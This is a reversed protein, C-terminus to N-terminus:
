RLRELLGQKITGFVNGDFEINFAVFATNKIVPRKFADNGLQFAPVLFCIRGPGPLFDALVHAKTGTRFTLPCFQIQRCTRHPNLPAIQTLQGCQGDGARQFIKTFQRKRAQLFHNGLSNEFFHDLAQPKQVVDPQRIQSQVAGGARKGTSFALADAQCSLDTGLQGTDEINQILGTDAKM